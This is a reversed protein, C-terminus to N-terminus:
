PSEYRLSQGLAPDHIPIVRASAFNWTGLAACVGVVGVAWAADLWRLGDHLPPVCIWYMDLAHACVMWGGVFALAGPTRKLPRSLLLLFPIVFHVVLLAGSASAWGGRVRDAYFLAERPIDAIWALMFQCFAIYGWFIVGVLLVRGLAHFHDPKVEGPLIGARWALWAGVCTAGIAGAFSGAFLYFGFMDSSWLPSLPMLWDFSAFTLTLAVLPLGFSSVLREHRVIRESAKEDNGIGERRLVLALVTWVGLYAYSRLVFLPPNMWVRQHEVLHRLEPDGIAELPRAWPYLVKLGLAIPIFLFLFLPMTAALAGTIRRLVVFWRARVAHGIMVFLLSGLALGLAGMFAAVYAFLAHRPAAFIQACGLALGAVGIVGPVIVARTRV